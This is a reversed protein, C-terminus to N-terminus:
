DASVLRCESRDMAGKVAFKTYATQSPLVNIFGLTSADILEDGHFFAFKQAANNKLAMIGSTYSGDPTMKGKIIEIGGAMAPGAAVTALVALLSGLKRMSTGLKKM